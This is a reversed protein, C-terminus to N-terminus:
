MLTRDEDDVEVELDPIGSKGTRNNSNQRPAGIRGAGTPPPRGESDLPLYNALIHEVRSDVRSRERRIYWFLFAGAAVVVLIVITVVLGVSIGRDRPKEPECVTGIPCTSSCVVPETNDAFGACAVDILGCSDATVPDLCALSGHYPEENVFIVPKPETYVGMNDAMTLENELITNLGSSPDYSQAVCDAVMGQPLGLMSMVNASCSALSPAATKICRTDFEQAYAWWQDQKGTMNVISFLCLQRLSELINEKNQYLYDCYTSNVCAASCDMMYCYYSPYMVFHPEFALSKGFSQVIKRFYQRFQMSGSDPLTLFAVMEARDDPSPVGWSLEVNVMGSALAMKIKDGDAKTIAMSPIGVNSGSGDDKMYPPYGDVSNVVVM